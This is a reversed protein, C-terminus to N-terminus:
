ANTTFRFGQATQQQTFNTPTNRYTQKKGCLGCITSDLVLLGMSNKLFGGFNWAKSPKSIKRSPPFLRQGNWHPANSISKKSVNVNENNNNETLLEPNEIIVDVPEKEVHKATDDPTEGQEEKDDNITSEDEVEDEPESSSSVSSDSESSSM